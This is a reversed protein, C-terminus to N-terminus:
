SRAEQCSQMPAQPASRLSAYCAGMCDEAFEKPTRNGLSFHPRAENYHVKWIMTLQQAEQLSTFYNMELFEDRFRSNFSEIYGNQWPAGPAVYLPGVSMKELWTQMQAAIFESGNDSRIHCPVGHTAMLDSLVGVTADATFSRRVELCLNERTFEDLIVLFKLQRGDITRDYIFDWTWVDNRFLAIRKDCAHSCDGIARKKRRKQAVKFGEQKWLRHVHKHNVHWGVRQLCATIFRYGRRPHEKVLEYIASLLVGDQDRKKPTYRQTSRPQNVVTCARRESVEHTHQVVNAADRRRAPSLLKGGSHGATYGQRTRGRGFAEKIPREGNRIRKFAESRRVEYRRISQALSPLDCQESGISPM